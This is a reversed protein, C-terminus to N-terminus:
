ELAPKDPYAMIFGDENPMKVRALSRADMVADDAVIGNRFLLYAIVAYVEDISLSQPENFPMARRVHDFVTSAYPWYSGITRVQSLSDLTGHGGALRDHPQGM